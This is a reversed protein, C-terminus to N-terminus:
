MSHVPSVLARGPGSAELSLGKSRIVHTENEGKLRIHVECFGQYEFPLPWESVLEASEIRLEAFSILGSSIQLNLNEELAHFTIMVPQEFWLDEPSKVQVLAPNFLLTLKRGQQEIRSLHSGSAVVSALINQGSSFRGEAHALEDVEVGASTVPELVEAGLFQERRVAYYIVAFLCGLIFGALHTQHSVQPRFTEGPAFLLLAVGLSRLLRQSLNKQRSLFFYFVLWIGGMCYVVGSAGLLRNSGPSNLLEPINALGGLVFASIPFVSFGFYGYLFFSLIFFLLLNSLLHSPDAHILCTTWLRYYEGNLFVTDRSAILRDELSDINWAAITVLTLIGSSTMAVLLSGPYPRRSLWTAIVNQLRNSM